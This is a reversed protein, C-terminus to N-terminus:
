VGKSKCKYYNFLETDNWIFRLERMITKPCESGFVRSIQGVTKTKAYDIFTAHAKVWNTVALGDLTPEHSRVEVTQFRNFARWNLWVYRTDALPKDPSNVIKKRDWYSPKASRKSGTSRHAYLHDHRSKDTFSEWVSRTYHYALAIAKRQAPTTDSLDLHVHYGCDSDIDADNKVLRNCFKMVSDYGDNGYLIPSVFEPGNTSGDEKCGWGSGKAWESCDPASSTELEIGFKRPSGIKEFEACGKWDTDQDWEEFEQQDSWCGECYIGNDNSNHTEDHM